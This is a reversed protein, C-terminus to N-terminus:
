HLTLKRIRLNGTDAVYINGSSDVALGQIGLFKADKASGDDGAFGGRVGALFSSRGDRDFQCVQVGDSAIIGGTGFVMATVTQFQCHLIGDYVVGGTSWYARVLTGDPMLRHLEHASYILLSDDSDIATRAPTVPVLVGPSDGPYDRGGLEGTGAVTQINGDPTIRRIRSAGQDSIYINGRSDVALDAIGVFRAERAPGGDGSYVTEDGGAITSIVGDTGIRRIRGGDIFYINGDRDTTVKSPWRLRAELAPGGDGTWGYEGTGAVTTIIGEPSIRRLRNDMQDVVILSGDRDVEVDVPHTLLAERAPGGDGSSRMGGIVTSLTGAEDLKRICLGNKDVLMLNDATDFDIASILVYPPESSLNQGGDLM